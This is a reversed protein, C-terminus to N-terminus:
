HPELDVEVVRLPEVQDAAGSPRRDGRQLRDVAPAIESRIEFLLRDVVRDDIDGPVPNKSDPFIAAIASAESTLTAGCLKLPWRPENILACMHATPGFKLTMSISMSSTFHFSSM